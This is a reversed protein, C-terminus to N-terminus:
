KDGGVGVSKSEVRGRSAPLARQAIGQSGHSGSLMGICIFYM